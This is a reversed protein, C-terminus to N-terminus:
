TELNYMILTALKKKKFSYITPWINIRAKLAFDLHVYSLLMSSIIQIFWGLKVLQIRQMLSSVTLAAAFALVKRSKKRQPSQSLFLKWCWNKNWKKWVNLLAEQLLTDSMQYIYAYQIDKYIQKKTHKLSSNKSYTSTVFNNLWYNSIITYFKKGKYKSGRFDKIGWIVLWTINTTSKDLFRAVQQWWYFSGWM